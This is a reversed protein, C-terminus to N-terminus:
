RRRNRLEARLAAHLDDADILEVREMAVEAMRRAIEISWAPEWGAIRTSRHRQRDPRTRM